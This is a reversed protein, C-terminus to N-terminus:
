MAFRIKPNVQKIFLRFRQVISGEDMLTQHTNNETDHNLDERGCFIYTRRNSGDIKLVFYAPKPDFKAGKPKKRIIRIETEHDWSAGTSDHCVNVNFNSMERSTAISLLKDELDDFRNESAIGFYTSSNCETGVRSLAISM